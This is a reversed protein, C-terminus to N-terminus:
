ASFHTVAHLLTRARTLTRLFRQFLATTASGELLVQGSLDNWMNQNWWLIGSMMVCPIEGAQKKWDNRFNAAAQIHSTLLLEFDLPM